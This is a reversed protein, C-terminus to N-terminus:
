LEASLQLTGSIQANGVYWDTLGTFGNFVVMNYVKNTSISGVSVTTSTSDKYGSQTALRITVGGVFSASPTARLPVPAPVTAYVQTTGNQKGALMTDGDVMLYYRQCLALETGYQRYEFPSATTGAELQVGTIYFTAGSNNIWQVNSSTGCYFSAGSSWTNATTQRSSGQGLDIGAYIGVGNTTGWTGTTPGPITLTVYQWTNASAITFTAVYSLNIGANILHFSYTGTVSSRAWFSVTAAKADATGWGLDAINYGEIKTQYFYYDTGSPAVTATVTLLSSYTFNGNPVTSSQAVSYAGTTSFADYEWRDLTFAGANAGPTFSTGRQSIVMAGNIIRNRFTVNNSAGQAINVALTM